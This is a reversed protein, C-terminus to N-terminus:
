PAAKDIKKVNDAEEIMADAWEYRLMAWCSFFVRRLNDNEPNCTGIVRQADEFSIPADKALVDRYTV